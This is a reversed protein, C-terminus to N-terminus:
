LARGTKEGGTGRTEPSASRGAHARGWGPLAAPLIAGGPSATGRQCETHYGHGTQRPSTSGVDGHAPCRGSCSASGATGAEGPMRGWVPCRRSGPGSPAVPAPHSAAPGGLATPVRETSGVRPM